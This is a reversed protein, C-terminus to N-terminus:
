LRRLTGKSKEGMAEKILFDLKGNKSDQVIRDDWKEWDKESFWERLKIYEKESLSLIEEKIKEATVM